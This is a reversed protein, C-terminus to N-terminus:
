TPISFIGVRDLIRIQVGNLQKWFFQVRKLNIVKLLFQRIDRSYPDLMDPAAAFNNFGYKGVPMLM